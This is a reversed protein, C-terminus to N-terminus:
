VFGAAEALVGAARRDEQLSFIQVVGTRVLDVVHKPLGQQRLLHALGPHDSLRTRTLVADSGRGCACEEPQLAHDVHTGDVGRPLGQVHGPHPKQTCFDNRHGRARLRQLVRDVFRKAVPDGVGLARVVAEARRRTRMWERHHDAVKLTHYTQLRARLDHGLCTSQRVGHGGAHASPRIRDPDEVGEDIIGANAQHTEFRRTIADFGAPVGRRERTARGAGEM